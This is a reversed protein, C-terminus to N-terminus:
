ECSLSNSFSSPLLFYEAFVNMLSNQNTFAKTTSGLEFLTHEDVTKGDIDCYELFIDENGDIIGVAVVRNHTMSCIRNM